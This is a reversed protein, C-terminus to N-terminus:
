VQSTEQTQARAAEQLEVANKPGIGQIAILDEQDAEAVSEPTDFGAAKLKAALDPGVGPLDEIVTVAEEGGRLKGLIAELLTCRAQIDYLENLLPDQQIAGARPQDLITDYAVNHEDAVERMLNEERAHEEALQQTLILFDAITSV